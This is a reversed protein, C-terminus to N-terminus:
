SVIKEVRHIATSRGRRSAELNKKQHHQNRERTGWHRPRRSGSVLRGNRLVLKEAKDFNLSQSESRVAIRSHNSRLPRIPLLITEAIIQPHPAHSVIGDSRQGRSSM